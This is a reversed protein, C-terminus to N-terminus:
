CGWVKVTGEQQQGVWYNGSDDITVYRSWEIYGPGTTDGLTVVRRVTICSGCTASSELIDLTATSDQLTTLDPRADPVGCGSLWGALAVALPLSVRTSKGPMRAFGQARTRYGHLISRAGVQTEAPERDRSM